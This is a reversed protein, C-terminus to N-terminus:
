YLGGKNYSTANATFIINTATATSQPVNTIAVARATSGSAPRRRDSRPSRPDSLHRASSGGGPHRRDSWGSRDRGPFGPGPLGRRAAFPEQGQGLNVSNKRLKKVTM